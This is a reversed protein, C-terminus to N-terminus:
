GLIKTNEYNSNNRYAEINNKLELHKKELEQKFEELNKIKYEKLRM